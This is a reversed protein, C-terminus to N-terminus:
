VGLLRRLVQVVGEDTNRPAIFRAARQVAGHGNGMAFSWDGEAMMELDNLYDGFVAVGSRPVGLSMELARLARGKNAAGNMIDIWNRGSVVVQHGPGGGAGSRLDAVGPGGGTFLAAAAQAASDFDFVACKLVTGAEIEPVTHLNPVVELSRYYRHAETIFAEDDREVYARQPGCVVLGTNRSSEGTRVIDIIREVTPSDLPSTSVVDDDHVVLTGNECIFTRIGHSAFMGHLTAYQRGSAPVVMIGRRRLEPLLGWFSDPVEDDGNLLTGDMDPVVLRLDPVPGTIDTWPRSTPADPATDTIDTIDTTDTTDPSNM